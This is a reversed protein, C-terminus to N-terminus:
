VIDLIRLGVQVRSDPELALAPADIDPALVQSVFLCVRLERGLLERPEVDVDPVERRRACVADVEMQAESPSPLAILTVAGRSPISTPPVFVAATAITPSSTMADVLCSVVG